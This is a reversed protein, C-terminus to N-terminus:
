HKAELRDISMSWRLTSPQKNKCASRSQNPHYSLSNTLSLLFICRSPDFVSIWASVRDNSFLFRDFILMAQFLTRDGLEFVEVVEVMWDVMHQRGQAYYGLDENSRRSYTNELDILHRVYCFLKKRESFDQDFLKIERNSSIQAITECAENESESRYWRLVRGLWITIGLPCCQSSYMLQKDNSDRLLFDEKLEFHNAYLDRILSPNKQNDGSISLLYKSGTARERVHYYMESEPFNNGYCKLNTFGILSAHLTAENGDGEKLQLSRHVSNSNNDNCEMARASAAWLSKSDVIGRWQKCVLSAVRLSEGDVIQSESVFFKFVQHLIDSSLLSM